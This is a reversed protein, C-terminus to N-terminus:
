LQNHEYCHNCSADVVNVLDLNKYQSKTFPNTKCYLQVAKDLKKFYFSLIDNNKSVRVLGKKVPDTIKEEAVFQNNEVHGYWLQISDDM